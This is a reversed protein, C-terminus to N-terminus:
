NQEYTGGVISPRINMYKMIESPLTVETDDTVKIFGLGCIVIDSNGKVKFTTGIMEKNYLRTIHIYNSFYFVANTNGSLKIKFLDALSYTCANKNQYTIPRIERDINSFKDLEFNDIVFGPSDVLTMNGLKIRVFDQTTNEKYSTALKKVNAGYKDILANILTSKGSNTLGLFYVEDKGYLNKIFTNLNSKNSTFVIDGKVQYVVKLYNKIQGYSVNKPIIDSKSIVLTKPVKISKFINMVDDFLNIFDTMFVAYKAHKNVSDVISSISKPTTSKVYKGYHMMKFCRQCYSSEELKALPVYGEKTEDSSQLKAGCGFCIRSM